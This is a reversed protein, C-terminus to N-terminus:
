RGPGDPPNSIAIAVPPGEPAGNKMRSITDDKSQSGSSSGFFYQMVQGASAGAMGFMAAQLSKDDLFCTAILAGAFILMATLGLGPAVWWPPVARTTPAMGTVEAMDLGMRPVDSM